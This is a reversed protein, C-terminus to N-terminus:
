SMAPFYAFVLLFHQAMWASLIPGSKDSINNEMAVSFYTIQSYHLVNMKVGSVNWWGDNKGDLLLIYQKM